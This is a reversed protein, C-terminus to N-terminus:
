NNLHIAGQTSQLLKKYNTIWTTPTWKLFHTPTEKNLVPQDIGSITQTYELVSILRKGTEDGNRMHGIFLKTQQIVM